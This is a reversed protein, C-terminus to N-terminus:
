WEGRNPRHKGNRSEKIATMTSDTYFHCAGACNRLESVTYKTENPKEYKKHPGSRFDNAHCGACDPKYAPQTWTATQSNGQHCDLCGVGSRHDGPYGPSSHTFNIPAWRTTSHCSDCQLSTGFHNGAKGTASVGNHCSSCAGTVLGHDLNAPIWALTGHCDDCQGNTQIHSANKGLATTGNHCSACTGTVAGHDFRVNTWGTTVHCDECVNGTPIHSANKGRATTGNHCSACTGTVAGHDFRV